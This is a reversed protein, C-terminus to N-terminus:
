FPLDDDATAEVNEAITVKGDKGFVSDTGEPYKRAQNTWLLAMATMEDDNLKKEKVFFSVAKNEWWTKMKEFSDFSEREFNNKCQEALLDYTSSNAPNQASPSWLQGKWIKYVRKNFIEVLKNVCGDPDDSHKPIGDYGSGNWPFIPDPHSGNVKISLLMYDKGEKSYLNMTIPTDTNLNEISALGVVFSTSAVSWDSRLQLKLTEVRQGNREMKFRPTVTLLFLYGARVRHEQNGEDWVIDVDDIYFDFQNFPEDNWLFCHNKADIRLYNGAGAGPQPRDEIQRGM